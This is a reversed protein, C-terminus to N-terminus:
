AGMMQTLSMNKSSAIDKLHGLIVNAYKRAEVATGMFAGANLNINITSASGGKIKNNPIVTSSQGPIIIEPGKEGVLYANGASIPGGSARAGSINSFFSQYQAKSIKGSKYANIVDQMAATQSNDESAEQSNLKDLLDLTQQGKAFVTALEAVVAAVPVAAIFSASLASLSAMMSPITVVQLTAFGIKLADFADNLMMSGKLLIFAGTLLEVAGRHDSIFNMVPTIAALLVNLGNTVLWIAGVLLTGIVPLLPEIIGHWFNLLAPMLKNTITNWLADFSPELFQIVQDAIKKISNYAQDLWGKFSVLAAITKNIVKEWDISAVAELAKTAFPQLRTVIVQGVEVNVDHISNKLKALSGAFTNGAAEASGGFERQLEQLILQQAQAQQGTNVLNTIVQKQADNFNVGVRRLATIGLIPDQLAKGLQISASKTDEGLATAMDLVTKTAQPFIDKGIATFTLLLNEVSRVDENSFKTTNELSKSLKDVQDATVGAIGGTSKLVANTQAIIEQSDSFAKVAVTGYAVAATGAAGVAVATAKLTTAIKDGLSSTNDGFKSLVDSAEDKATIVAKISAQNDM